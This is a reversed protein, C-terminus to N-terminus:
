PHAVTAAQHMGVPDSFLQAMPTVRGIARMAATVEYALFPYTTLVVDPQARALLAGVNRAFVATFIQHARLARAPTDAARFEAAWLWLAYCSDLRYHWHILPPQPDVIEVTHAAALRDRLAAALSVHGGGTRSTLILLKAM